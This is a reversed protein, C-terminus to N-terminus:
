KENISVQMGKMAILGIKKAYYALVTNNEDEISVNLGVM